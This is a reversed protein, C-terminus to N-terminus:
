KKTIVYITKKDSGLKMQFNPSGEIDDNNIIAKGSQLESLYSGNLNYIAGSDSINSSGNKVILDYNQMNSNATATYTYPSKKIVGKSTVTETANGCKVEFNLTINKDSTGRTITAIDDQTLHTITCGEYTPAIEVGAKEITYNSKITAKANALTSEEQTLWKAKLTVDSKVITTSTYKTNGVYWGGFSYGEKTPTPLTGIKENKYAKQANITNGGDTNFSVTVEEKAAWIAKLTINETLVKNFDYKTGNLQWEVFNYGEKTPDKPKSVKENEKVVVNAITSGGDTNFVVTYTIEDGNREWKAVLTMDSTVERNFDYKTGNLQWEIFNYGAKVPDAPKQLKENENVSVSSVNSGGDTDFTVQYKKTNDYMAKLVIHDTVEKSFDYKQNDQYWGIFGTSNSANREPVTKGEEVVLAEINDGDVFVVAYKEKKFAILLVLAILLLVIIIIYIADKVKSNNTKGKETPEVYSNDPNEYQQNPYETMGSLNLDEIPQNNMNNPQVTSYDSMYTNSYGNQNNQENNYM